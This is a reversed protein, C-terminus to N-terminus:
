EIQITSGAGTATRTKTVLIKKDIRDKLDAVHSIIGVLRHGETLTQLSKLAQILAEEDLSGFGEDVFMTDLEIGGGHTQIEDSLGLALALSAQFTEGGSLTKVSRITGNYHDIVDLELGSKGLRSKTEKRRILEYQGSSMTLLRVNARAIICDFYWTQVYTELMIRTKGTITGNATDSLAKMWKWRKETKQLNQQQEKLKHSIGSNNEKRLSLTDRASTLTKKEKELSNKQEELEETETLEATKLQDKLTEISATLETIEKQIKEYDAKTKRYIKEIASKEITLKQIYMRIEEATKEGLEARMIEAQKMLQEARTEDAALGQILQNRQMELKDKEEQSRTLKKELNTKRTIKEEARKQAEELYKKRTELLDGAQEGEAKKQFLAEFSETFTERAKIALERSAKAEASAKSAKKELSAVKMQQQELAERSPAEEKCQAIEPHHLSGCVPCKKGPELNRALIGAQEDFFAQQMKQYLSSEEQYLLFADKYSKQANELNKRQKRYDELSTNVKTLKELEYAAEKKEEGATSLETLERSTEELFAKTKQQKEQIQEQEKHLKKLHEQIDKIEQELAEAQEYKKLDNKAIEISLTLQESTLWAKEAQEYDQKLLEMAPASEELRRNKKMLNERAEKEQRAKGLAQNINQLKKETVSLAAQVQAFEEEDKELFSRLLGSCEEMNGEFGDSLLKIWREGANGSLPQVQEMYQRISRLLEKYEKDLASAEFRLKEQITHYIDTHFLKRFITSREETEALLLKRFDGQAIMAIQTFQKMDLGILDTVAATVERVKTVPKREDPFTLIADGKQLTTGTGRTKPREYDPSRKVTYQQNKYLFTLEAYTATEPLAYKSRLMSSERIGGSTEGYLAFTIGDFITTKGAGTDGSVLFLGHDGLRTFDIETEGAYPGFASLTLKLPKM